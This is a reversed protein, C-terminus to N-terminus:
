AAARLARRRKAVPLRLNAYDVQYLVRTSRNATETTIKLIEVDGADVLPKLVRRVEDDVIAPIKQESARAIRERVKSGLGKLSPVSGDELYLLMAVMQDVPHVLRKRDFAQATLDFLSATPNEAATSAPVYVPDAGFPGSGAGYNGFGM